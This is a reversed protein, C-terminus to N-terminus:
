PHSFHPVADACSLEVIIPIFSVGKLWKSVGTYGDRHLRHMFFSSLFFVNSNSHADLLQGYGNMIEDNLWEGPEILRHIDQRSLRPTTRPQQRTTPIHTFLIVEAMEGRM